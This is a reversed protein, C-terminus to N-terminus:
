GSFKSTELKTPFNVLYSKLVEVIRPNVIRREVNPPAHQGVAIGKVITYADGKIKKVDKMRKLM